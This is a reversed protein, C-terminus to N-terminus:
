PRRQDCLCGCYYYDSLCYQQSPQLGLRTSAAGFFIGQYLVFAPIIHAFRGAVSELDKSIDETVLLKLASRIARLLVNKSLWDALGAVVILAGIGAVTQLSLNTALEDWNM